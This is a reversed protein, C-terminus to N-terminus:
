EELDAASVGLRGGLEVNVKKYVASQNYGKKSFLYDDPRSKNEQM